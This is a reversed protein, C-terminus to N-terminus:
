MKVFKGAFVREGVVVKLSYMGAALKQVDLVQENALLVLRGQTDFVQVDLPSSTSEPLQINLFDSVPNPSVTVEIALTKQTSSTFQGNWKYVEGQSGWPVIKGLAAVGTQADLFDVSILRTDDIKEWTVGKDFTITTGYENSPIFNNHGSLIFTGDTGPLYHIAAPTVGPASETWTEGSDTTTYVVTPLFGTANGDSALMITSEDKIAICTMSLGEDSMPNSVREWTQAKDNSQWYYGLLTSIVVVDGAVEYGSNTAYGGGYYENSIYPPANAEDIVTWTTGGDATTASVPHGNAKRGFVWGESANYFHVYLPSPLLASVVVPDWDVGGNLTRFMGPPLTIYAVMSDVASLDLANVGGMGAIPFSQWTSGGDTSRHVIPLQTPPPPFADYSSFAWVTSPGAFQIDWVRHNTPFLNPAVQEWQAKLSFPIGLSLLFAIFLFRTKM